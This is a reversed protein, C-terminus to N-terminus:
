VVFEPEAAKITTSPSIVLESECRGPKHLPPPYTALQQCSITNANSININAGVKHQSTYLHLDSLRFLIYHLTIYLTTPTTLSCSQTKMPIRSYSYAVVPIVCVPRRPAPAAKAARGGRCCLQGGGPRGPGLGNWVIATKIGPLPTVVCM